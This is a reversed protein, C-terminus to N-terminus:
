KSRLAVSLSERERESLSLDSQLQSIQRQLEVLQGQAAALQKSDSKADTLEGSLREIEAKRSEEQTRLQVVTTRENALLHLAEDHQLQTKEHLAQEIERKAQDVTLLKVQERLGTCEQEAKDARLNAAQVLSQAESKANLVLLECKNENDSISKETEKKAEESLAIAETARQEAKDVQELAKTAKENAENILQTAKAEAMEIRHLCDKEKEELLEIAEDLQAKQDSLMQQLTATKREVVSQMEDALLQAIKSSGLEDAMKLVEANRKDNFDRLLKSVTETKGGTVQMVNRVSPKTGQNLMATAAKSVLDFTVGSQEAM